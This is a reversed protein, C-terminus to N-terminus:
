ATVPVGSALFGSRNVNNPFSIAVPFALVTTPTLIIDPVVAGSAGLSAAPIRWIKNNNDNCGWLNGASDFQLSTPLNFTASTLVITPVPNGSVPSRPNFAVITNTSTAWLLGTPGFALGDIFAFNSGSWFVAPVVSSNSVNFQSQALMYIGGQGAATFGLSSWINGESDVACVNNDSTAPALNGPNFLSISVDPTPAGSSAYTSQRFMQLAAVGFTGRGGVMVWLNNQRDFFASVAASGGAPVTFALTVAAAPSGSALCDRLLFKKVTGSVFVGGTIIASTVWLNGLNDVVVDSVTVSAPPIEAALDLIIQPDNASSVTLQGPTFGGLKSNATGQPGGFPAVWLTFNGVVYAKSRRFWRGTSSGAIILPSSATFVSAADLRYSESEALVYVLSGDPYNQLLALTALSTTVPQGTLALAGSPSIRPRQTNLAM